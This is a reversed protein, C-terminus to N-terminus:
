FSSWCIAMLPYEKYKLQYINEVVKVFCREGEKLEEYMQDQNDSALM